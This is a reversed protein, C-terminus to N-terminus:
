RGHFVGRPTGGDKEYDPEGADQRVALAIPEALEVAIPVDARWLDGAAGGVVGDRLFVPERGATRVHPPGAVFEVEDPLAHGAIEDQLCADLEDPLAHVRVPLGAPDHTRCLVGVSWVHVGDDVAVAERRKLEPARLARVGLFPGSRYFPRVDNLELSFAIGVRQRRSLEPIGERRAFHRVDRKSVGEVDAERQARVFDVHHFAGDEAVDPDYTGCLIAEDRISVVNAAQELDEVDLRAAPLHDISGLLGELCGVPRAVAAGEDVVAAPTRLTAALEIPEVQCGTL